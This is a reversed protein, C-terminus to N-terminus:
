DGKHLLKQYLCRVLTVLFSKIYIEKCKKSRGQHMTLFNRLAHSIVGEVKGQLAAHFTQGLHVM